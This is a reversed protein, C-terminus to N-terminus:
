GEEIALRASKVVRLNDALGDLAGMLRGLLAPDNISEKIKAVTQSTNGGRLIKDITDSHKIVNALTGIDLRM